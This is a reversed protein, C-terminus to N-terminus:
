PSSRLSMFYESRSTITGFGTQVSFKPHMTPRSKDFNYKFWFNYYVHITPFKCLNAGVHQASESNTSYDYIENM